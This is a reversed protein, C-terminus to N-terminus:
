TCRPTRPPGPPTASAAPCTCATARPWSPRSWPRRPPTTPGPPLQTQHGLPFPVAADWVQWLKRGHVQLVFVDHTDHHVGLGRSAPPTLYANVQV